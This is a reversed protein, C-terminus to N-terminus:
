IKSRPKKSSVIAELAQPNKGLIRYNWRLRKDDGKIYISQGLSMVGYKKLTRVPKSKFDRPIEDCNMLPIDSLAMKASRRSKRGVLAKKKRWASRFSKNGELPLTRHDRSLSLRKKQEPSKIRSVRSERQSFPVFLGGAQSV